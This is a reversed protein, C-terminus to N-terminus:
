KKNYNRNNKIISLHYSVLVAGTSSIDYCKILASIRLKYLITVCIGLPLSLSILGAFFPLSFRTFMKKTDLKLLDYFRKLPTM